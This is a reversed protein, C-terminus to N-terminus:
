ELEKRLEKLAKVAKKRDKEGLRYNSYKALEFVERIESVKSPSVDLTRIAQKEFERPTMFELNKAGKEELIWCMRQYCRLVTSYIDKGERLEKVASDVTSSIQDELKEENERNETSPRIIPIVRQVLLFALIVGVLVILLLTGFGGFATEMYGGPDGWPISIGEGNGGIAESIMEGGGVLFMVAFLFVGIIGLVALYPSLGGEKSVKWIALTALVIMLGIFFSSWTLGIILLVYGGIIMAPLFFVAVVFVPTRGRILSAVPAIILFLVLLITLDVDLSGGDPDEFDPSSDRVIGLSWSALLLLIM